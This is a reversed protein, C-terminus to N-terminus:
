TPRTYITRARSPCIAAPHDHSSSQLGGSRPVVFCTIPMRVGRNGGRWPRTQQFRDRDWPRGRCSQDRSLSFHVFIKAQAVLSEQYRLIRRACRFVQASLWFSTEYWYQNQKIANVIQIGVNSLFFFIYSFLYLVIRLIWTVFMILITGIILIRLRKM